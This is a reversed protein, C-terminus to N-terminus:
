VPKIIESQWSSNLFISYSTNALGVQSEGNEFPPQSVNTGTFLRYTYDPSLSTVLPVVQYLSEEWTKSTLSNWTSYNNNIDTWTLKEYKDLADKATAFVSFNNILGPGIINIASTTPNGLNLVKPFKVGVVSWEGLEIHPTTTEHDNIFYTIDTLLTETGNGAVLYASIDGEVLNDNIASSTASIYFRIHGYGATDSKIEFLASKTPFQDKNFNIFFQLSGVFFKDLNNKNVELKIGRTYDTTFDGILEIGSKDTMYLHPSSQKYIRYPNLEGNASYPLAQTAFRSSIESNAIQSSIQLSKVAVNNTFIGDIDTEIAISVFSSKFANQDLYNNAAPYLVAGDFVQAIESIVIGNSNINQANNWWFSNADVISTTAFMKIPGYLSVTSDLGITKANDVFNNIQIFDFRYQNDITKALRTFPIQDKWYGCSRIDPYVFNGISKFNLEYTPKVLINATDSLYIGSTDSDQYVTDLMISCNDSDVMGFNHINYKFQSEFTEDSGLYIVFSNQSDRTSIIEPYTASLTTLANYIDAGFFVESYVPGPISKIVYTALTSNSSKIILSFVLNYSGGSTTKNMTFSLVNGTSRDVIKAIEIDQDNPLVEDFSLTIYIMKIIKNQLPNSNFKIYSKYGTDPVFKLYDTSVAFDPDKMEKTKALMQEITVQSSGNYSIFSPLLYKQPVISSGLIDLNSYEASEWKATNPYTYNQVYGTVSYDVFFSKGNNKSIVSQPFEVAQGYAFHKKAVVDPILSNYIAVCDINTRFTDSSYFGLWDQELYNYSNLFTPFNQQSAADYSIQGVIDGNVLLSAGTTGLEINILMPRNWESIFHSIFFNGVKLIMTQDKVYLGDDSAVPGFFRFPTNDGNKGHNSYAKLWFEFTMNKLQGQKNLFGKGPVIISPQIELLGPVPVGYGIFEFSTPREYLESLNSAGFVMPVGGNEVSPFVEDAYLIHTGLGPFFQPTVTKAYYMYRASDTLSQYASGAAGYRKGPIYIYPLVNYINTDLAMPTGSIVGNIEEDLPWMAIPHESFIKDAYLNTPTPM